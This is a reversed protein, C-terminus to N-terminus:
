WDPQKWTVPCNAKLKRGMPKAMFM